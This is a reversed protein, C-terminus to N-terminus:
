GPRSSPRRTRSRWRRRRGCEWADGVQVRRRDHDAVDLLQLHLSMGRSSRGVETARETQPTGRADAGRHLVATARAARGTRPSPSGTGRGSPAAHADLHRVLGAPEAGVEVGLPRALVRRPHSRVSARRPGAAGRRSPRQGVRLHTPTSRRASRRRSSSRAAPSRRGSGGCGGRCRASPRAGHGLRPARLEDDGGCGVVEEVGPHLADERRQGQVGDRDVPLRRAAPGAILQAAQDVVAPAQHDVGLATARGVAPALVELAAGGVEGPAGAHRHHGHEDVAGPRDEALPHLPGLGALGLDHETCRQDGPRLLVGPPEVRADLGRDRREAVLGEGVGPGGSPAGRRPRRRRRVPGSYVPQRRCHASVSCRLSPLAPM